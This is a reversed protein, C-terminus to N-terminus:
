IHVYLKSFSSVIEVGDPLTTSPNKRISRMSLFSTVETAGERGVRAPQREAQRAAAPAPAVPLPEASLIM